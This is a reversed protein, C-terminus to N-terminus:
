LIDALKELPNDGSPVFIEAKNLDNNKLKINYDLEMYDIYKEINAVFFIIIKENEFFKHYKEPIEIMTVDSTGIFKGEFYRTYGISGNNNILIFKGEYINETESQIEKESVWGNIGYLHNKKAASFIAVNNVSTKYKTKRSELQYGPIKSNIRKVPGFLSEISVKTFNNLTFNEFNHKEILQEDVNDDYQKEIEKLDIKNNSWPIILEVNRLRSKTLSINYTYDEVTKSILTAFWIGIKENVKFHKPKLIWINQGCYFDDPQYFTSGTSGDLAITIQNGKNLYGERDRVYGTIGNNLASRGLFPKSDKFFKENYEFNIRDDMKPPIIEFLDLLNVKKNM